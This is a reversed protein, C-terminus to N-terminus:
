ERNFNAIDHLTVRSADKCDRGTYVISVFLSL